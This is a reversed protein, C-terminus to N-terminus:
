PDTSSMMKLRVQVDNREEGAYRYTRRVKLGRVQVVDFNGDKKLWDLSIVSPKRRPEALFLALRELVLKKLNVALATANSSPGDVKYEEQILTSLRKSGLQEYFDELLTEQLAKSMVIM